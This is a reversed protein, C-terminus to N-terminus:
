RVNTIPASNTGNSRENKTAKLPGKKPPSNSSLTPRSKSDSNLRQRSSNHSSSSSGSPLDPSSGNALFDALRSLRNKERYVKLTTVLSFLPPFVDKLEIGLSNKIREVNNEVVARVQFEV